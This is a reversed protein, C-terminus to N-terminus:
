CRYSKLRMDAIPRPVFDERPLGDVTMLRETPLKILLDTEGVQLDEVSGNLGAMRDGQIDAGLAAFGIAIGEGMSGTWRGVLVLPLESRLKGERPLVQETWQRAIGTRREESPRNHIQYPEPRDVFWGLIGRAVTTNGGSPTNRLDLVLPVARPIDRMAADFAAITAFDGLSNNVRVV